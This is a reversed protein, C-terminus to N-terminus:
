LSQIKAYYVIRKPNGWTGGQFRYGVAGPYASSDRLDVGQTLSNPFISGLMVYDRELEDCHVGSLDKLQM